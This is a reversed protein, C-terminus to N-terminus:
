SYGGAPKWHWSKDLVVRHLKRCNLFLWGSAELTVIQGVGGQSAEQLELIIM